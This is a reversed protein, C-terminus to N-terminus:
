NLRKWNHIKNYKSNSGNTTFLLKDFARNTLPLTCFRTLANFERPSFKLSFLRMLSKCTCAQPKLGYSSTGTSPRSTKVCNDTSKYWQFSTLCFNAVNKVLQSVGPIIFYQKKPSLCWIVTIQATFLFAINLHMSTMDTSAKQLLTKNRHSCQKLLGFLSNSACTLTCM